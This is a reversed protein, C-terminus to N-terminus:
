PTNHTKRFQDPSIGVNKKFVRNFSAIEVYGVESAIDCIKKQTCSLMNKAAEIRYRIVMDGFNEGTCKKFWSCFYNPSLALYNSISSLSIKRCYYKQIYQMAIALRNADNQGSAKRAQTCLEGILEFLKQLLPYSVINQIIIILYRQIFESNVLMFLDTEQAFQVLTHLLITKAVTSM